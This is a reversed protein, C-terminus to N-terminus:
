DRRANPSASVLLRSLRKRWTERRIEHEWIRIVRYGLRNLARRTAADRRLNSQLKDQWFKRNSSPIKRACKACRHWFCGDVFVVVKSEVFLFDPKGPLHKAQKEFRDLGAAVLAEEVRLETSRNGKARVKSMRESRELPTLPDRRNM